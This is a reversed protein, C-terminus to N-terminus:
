QKFLDACVVWRSIKGVKIHYCCNSGYPVLWVIAGKELNKLFKLCRGQKTYHIGMEIFNLGQWMSASITYWARPNCEIVYLKGDRADIRMDFHALGEYHFAQVLRTAIAHMEPHQTFELVGDELWSQRYQM